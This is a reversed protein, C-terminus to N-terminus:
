QEPKMWTNWFGTYEIWGEEKMWDCYLVRNWLDPNEPVWRCSRNARSPSSGWTPLQSGDRKERVGGAINARGRKGRAPVKGMRVEVIDGPEVSLEQPVFLLVVNRAEAPGGCCYERAVALVGQRIESESLGSHKLAELVMESFEKGAKFELLEKGSQLEMIEAVRLTGSHDSTHPYIVPPASACGSLIPGLTLSYVAFLLTISCTRMANNWMTISLAM